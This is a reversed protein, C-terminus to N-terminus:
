HSNSRTAVVIVVVILLLVIVAAGVAIAIQAERSLEPRQNKGPRLKQKGSLCAQCLVAGTPGLRAQASTLIAYCGECFVEDQIDAGDEVAQLGEPLELPSDNQGNPEASRASKASWCTKCIFLGEPQSYVDDADFENGCTKCPYLPQQNTAGGPRPVARGSGTFVQQAAAADAPAKEAGAEERRAMVAACPKCYYYGEVDRVRPSNAVDRSCVHCRKEKATTM